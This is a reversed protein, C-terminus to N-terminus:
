THTGKEYPAIAVVMKDEPLPVIHQTKDPFEFVIESPTVHSQIDKHSLKWENALAMAQLADLNKLASKLSKEGNQGTCAQFFLAVGILLLLYIRLSKLHSSRMIKTNTGKYCMKVRKNMMIEKLLAHLSYYM